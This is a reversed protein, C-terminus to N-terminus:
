CIERVLRFSEGGEFVRKTEDREDRSLLTVHTDDLHIKDIDKKGKGTAKM